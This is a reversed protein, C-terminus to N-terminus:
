KVTARPGQGQLKSEETKVPGHCHPGAVGDPCVCVCLTVSVCPFVSVSVRVCLSLCVSVCVFVRAGVRVSWVCVGGCVCLFIM